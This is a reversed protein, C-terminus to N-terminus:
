QLIIKGANEDQFVIVKSHGLVYDFCRVSLSVGNNYVRTIKSNSGCFSNVASVRSDNFSNDDQQVVYGLVFGVVFLLVFCAFLFLLKFDM